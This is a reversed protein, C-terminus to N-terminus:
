CKQAVRPEARAQIHHPSSRGRRRPQSFETAGRTRHSLWTRLDAVRFILRRESIRIVPPGSGDELLRQVTRTSCRLWDAVEDLTLHETPITTSEAPQETLTM